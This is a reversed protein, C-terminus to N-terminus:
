ASGTRHPAPPWMRQLVGDHRVFRHFLAAAAHLAILGLLTWMAYGHIDGALSGWSAKREALAPLEFLGFLRVPLGHASASAWGLFPAILLIVYFAEHSGRALVREWLPANGPAVAVPRRLRHVLRVAMVVVIVIGVSFHFAVVNDVPTDLKIHPLIWASVFQGALLAVVLWHLTRALGDYSTALRSDASPQPPRPLPM